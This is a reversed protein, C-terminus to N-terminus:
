GSTALGIPWKRALSIIGTANNIKVKPLFYFAMVNIPVFLFPM